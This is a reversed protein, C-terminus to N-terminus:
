LQSKGPVNTLNVKTHEATSVIKGDETKMVGRITALRLGAHVVESEIRVKTGCPVPRIYTINLNRSVGTSEWFGERAIVMLAASTCIDYILAACGGHLSNLGNTYAAKITLEFVTTTSTTSVLVLSELIERDFGQYTPNLATYSTLFARFRAPGTLTLDLTRRDKTM